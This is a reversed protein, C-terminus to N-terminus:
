GAATVVREGRIACAVAAAFAESTYPKDLFGAAGAALCARAEEEITSGSALLVNLRPARARLAHFCEAGGMVPMMMDLVVLHIEGRRAEFVAIADKGNEAEHVHYGRKELIRRAGRRIRADDDVLLVTGTADVVPAQAPAAALAPATTAPVYMTFTTGSGLQSAVEIAGSSSKVTGYVMALGLGTGRGLEKTTFFPEFVKAMVDPSMGCGTDRVEIAIFPGATVERATARDGALTVPRIAIRITGTGSMADVANLCLNVLAQALLSRDGDTALPDAEFATEFVVTKPVTRMLLRIIEDVLAPLEVRERRYQGRRAFGLLNKTLEAGRRTSAILDDLDPRATMPLQECLVEASALIGGLVNNMDHAFGGALTGLSEMKQAHRFQAELAQREAEAHASEAEARQREAIEHRADALAAEVALRQRQEAQRLAEIRLVYSRGILHIALSISSASTFLLLDSGFAHDPLRGVAVMIVSGGVVFCVTWGTHLLVAGAAIIMT